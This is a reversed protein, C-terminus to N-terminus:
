NGIIISCFEESDYDCKEEIYSSASVSSCDVNSSDCVEFCAGMKEATILQLDCLRQGFGGQGNFAGNYLISVSALFQTSVVGLCRYVEHVEAPTCEMQEFLEGVLGEFILDQATAGEFFVGAVGVCAVLSGTLLKM